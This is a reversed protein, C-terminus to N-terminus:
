DGVPQVSGSPPANKANYREDELRQKEARRVARKASKRDLYGVVISYFVPVIMLTLLTSTLMGGMITTGMPSRFEGAAGLGLVVPTMALIMSFATMLIPRLRIPGAIRMAEDATAGNARAKNAFDVLLISNKTVLGMLMIFGIFATMDLPRGTLVLAMIGGIVSLPLALMIILPQIFSSFQSALVMYVFVISLAMSLGLNTFADKQMEADGALRAEMHPPMELEAMFANVDNMAEPLDRGVVNAGVVVIPQRDIRQIETPGGSYFVDAVSSVPVLAGTPALLNLNMIEDISDRDSEELQVRIDAEPEDGRYSGATEGNILTRLTAGIMATSLGSDAARQRDVDIQLEPAGEKYSTTVDIMGPIQGLEQAVRDAEAGLEEYSGGYSVIEIMVDRSGGFISDGGTLSDSIQFAIGPVDALPPRLENIVARSAIDSEVGGEVMVTFSAVGPNSLSGVEAFVDAVDPHSRIIDEVKASERETVELPTGPPMEMSILFQGQDIEPLFSRNIFQVSFASLVIIAVTAVVMIWKHDLAFFLNRRYVRDMWSRGEAEQALDDDIEVVEDDSYTRGKKKRFFYASLMPAMTLAEFTSVMIAFSVTLGFDRFFKGIIGEAYAVPLFVALITASTALVPLLVEETGRSSAERPSYGREIWRLINERVVIADDIVLGVVLALALLTVQNLGIDALQMFFLTAIMIIPLGAITILTNRIDRFFFLIVLSALLMGWLLDEVAGNASTKVQEALDGGIVVDWEPHAVQIREVEAKIGNSVKITNSGSTKRVSLVISDEGNLRTIVSRTEFDDRVEAIDRLHIPTPGPRVVVDGIESLDGFEGPTRILLELEDEVVSGGPISANALELAQIVEQTSIRRAEMAKQDLNVKVERVEGGNIEIEAVGEVRLLPAQVLDEVQARLEAPSTAGSSDAIALLMVPSATPDFRRVAPDEADDPLRNRLLDVKERVDQSVQDASANLDFVLIVNSVNEASISSIEDLEAIGSLDEEVVSTVQREVEDPSAGPYITTVVVIPFEVDPYLDVPMTTYAIGGLVVGAVLIMTMFVPYRIAINWIKM